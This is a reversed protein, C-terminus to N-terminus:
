STPSPHQDLGAYGRSSARGTLLLIAAALIFIALCFISGEPGTAGGSLLPQGLPHTALLHHQVTYGSDAVGFLFSQAWDWSAHFGIAWWLSGTRWLSFAFLVSSFAACLLGLPSEGPNKGHGLGFLISVLLAATWFGLAKAHPTRWLWAYLGALGRSLTFLLYGRALYEEGFAVALFALLWVGGYSWAPAGTLLRGDVALFGGQWLILVLLALCTVGLGLGTMFNPLARKANIGYVGLRRGEITSLIWTVLLTGFFLSSDSLLVLAPSFGSAIDPRKPVVHALRMVVNLGASLAALLVLFLSLSWGARLGDFGIFVSKMRSSKM